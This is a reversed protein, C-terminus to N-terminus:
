RVSKGRDSWRLQIHHNLRTTGLNLSYDKSIREMMSELLRVLLDGWAPIGAEVSAGAGCVLTLRGRRLAQRLSAVHAARTEDSSRGIDGSAVMSEPTSIRLAERLLRLGQEVDKSLDVYVRDALYSPVASDDIKIPIVRRERKAIQQLAIAAFERQVWPSQFSNQSIVVLFAEAQDLGEEIKASINDGPKLQLADMWIRHGDEKLSAVLQDVVAKDAFSYSIFIRM